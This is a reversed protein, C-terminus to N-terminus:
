HSAANRQDLGARRPRLVLIWPRSAGAVFTLRGDSDLAIDSRAVTQQVNGGVVSLTRSSEDVGVAIDCHLPPSHNGDQIADLQDPTLQTEGRTACVIDGVAVEAPTPVVEFASTHLMRSPVIYGAHSMSPWFETASFGAKKVISSIFVASWPRTHEPTRADNSPWAVDCVDVLGCSHLSTGPPVAQWYAHVLPCYASSQEDGCGDEVEVCALDVQVLCTPMATDVRVVKRGWRAWEATALAVLRDIRQQTVVTPARVVEPARSPLGVCGALLMGAALWLSARGITQHCSTM